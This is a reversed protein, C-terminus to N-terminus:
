STVQDIEGGSDRRSKCGGRGSSNIVGTRRAGRGKFSSGPKFASCGGLALRPGDVQERVGAEGVADTGIMLVTVESMNGASLRVPPGGVVATLDAV